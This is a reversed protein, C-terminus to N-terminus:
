AEPTGEDAIRAARAVTREDYESISSDWQGGCTMLTVAEYDTMGLVEEAPPDLNSEQRVWEVEYAYAHEEEDRLVVRDGERLTGLDFFVAEPVGWWNLHGALLINGTEGLRATEKYWAVHIEDSPQQMVGGVTELIEVPADVEIAEIQLVFPVPGRLCDDATSEDGDGQGNGQGSGEGDGDGSGQGDGQGSPTAPLCLSAPTGGPPTGDLPEIVQDGQALVGSRILAGGGLPIAFLAALRRRTITTCMTGERAPRSPVLGEGVFHSSTEDPGVQPDAREAPASVLDAVRRRRLFAAVGLLGALPAFAPLETPADPAPGLGVGTNPYKTPTKGPKGKDGPDTSCNYINVITEEGDAVDIWNGDDSLQESTLHCWDGDQEDLWYEGPDIGGWTVMGGGDTTKTAVYEWEDGNWMVLDFAKGDEYIECDVDSVYAETSCAYKYVTLRGEDYDPVNYWYCVISEGAGLDIDLTDGMSLPYPRLEGIKEGYCDLTFVYLTDPPVTEIVTYPGPELGGYYVAGDISDGTMTQLDVTGPDEDTLTFNVGNTADPCDERPDADWAHLDYGEPCTYKYITIEGPEGPVNYWNCFYSTNPIELESEYYGGPAEVRVPLGDYVAGDYFATFGCFVIPEGYETPIYEQLSFPGLPVATWEAKGAADTTDFTSGEAHTLKFDVGEHYQTCAGEYYAQDEDYPVGEPCYWKTVTIASDTGPVNFVDCRLTGGNFLLNFTSGESIPLQGGFTLMLFNCNWVFASETGEPLTETITYSGPPLGGFQVAGALSDGTDTQLDVSNPDSDSLVFTVGDTAETCDVPPNANAGHVDYGEPCTWKYLTLDGPEGIPVTYWDCYVVEDDLLNWDVAGSPAQLEMLGTEPGGNSVIGECYVRPAAPANVQAITTIGTPVEAFAVVGDNIDGTNQTEIEGSANGIRLPIGNPSATCDTDLATADAAALDYAAPCEWYNLNISGVQEGTPTGNAALPEPAGGTFWNCYVIEDDLLDWKIAGGTATMAMVGTEPGGNSVIGECYIVLTAPANTQAVTSMGTPVETFSVHYDGFEGTLQSASYAGSTVQFEVDNVGTCDMLMQDLLDEDTGDLFTYDEACERYEIEFSGVQEGTPEETATETGTAAGATVFWSCFAIEEDILDWEVDGNAVTMEMVGTEPGGNSVIGECVVYTQNFPVTQTITRLGTPVESFSVHSDGFEGTEQTEGDPGGEDITFEVGDAQACDMLMQDLDDENTGDLFAYGEACERYEIEVAGLQEGEVVTLWSCFAVEEDLLDWEISANGADVPVSVLGTEPGGNQVIGNCYVAIPGVPADQRIATNGTPLETFSVHADGFEGTLQSSPIGDSAIVEFLVDDVGACEMFLNDLDPNALDFGTPCEWYDIEVAGLQEGEPEETPSETPELVPEETPEVVPEETPEVFPEETPEALEEEPPIETPQAMAERQAEAQDGVSANAAVPSLLMLAFFVLM